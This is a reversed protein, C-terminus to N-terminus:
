TDLGEVGLSGNSLNTGLHLYRKAKNILYVGSPIAQKIILLILILISTCFVRFFKNNM